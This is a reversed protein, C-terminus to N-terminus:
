QRLVQRLQKVQTDVRLVKKACDFRELVEPLTLVVSFLLGNGTRNVLVRVQRVEPVDRQVQHQRRVRLGPM